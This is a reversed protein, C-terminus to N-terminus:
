GLRSVQITRISLSGLDGEFLSVMNETREESADQVVKVPSLLGRFTEPIQSTDFTTAM